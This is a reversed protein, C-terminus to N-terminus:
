GGPVPLIGIIEYESLDLEEPVFNQTSWWKLQKENNENKEEDWFYESIFSLYASSDFVEEPEDKTSRRSQMTPHYNAIINYDEESCLTFYNDSMENTMIIGVRKRNM